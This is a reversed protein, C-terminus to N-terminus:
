PRHRRIPRRMRPARAENVFVEFTSLYWGQVGICGDNGFEFRIRVEDGGHALAGLDIQSQGWRAAAEGEDVGTFAPEGALPNTNQEEDDDKVATDILTSNYPNFLFASSRILEWPGDNVSIKLNGGDWGTESALYHDFVLTAETVHSPLSIAPSELYMVGSQDNDGPRCNGINSSNIAWMAGGNLGPAARATWRWTRDNDYEEFVGESTRVWSSGPDADFSVSYLLQKSTVPPPNPALVRAFNCGVPEDRMEVALMAVAVQDCDVESIVEPSVSGTELDTLSQGILEACSLELADAHDVFKTTPTQWVSMARWYIHAAKTMGIPIVTQGNYSGGDVMLAFAHSPIGCNSHVGGNDDEGSCRYDPSGVRGPHQYCGPRWMDRVIYGIAPDDECILWRLSEDDSAEKLLTAEVGQDLAAKLAVGDNYGVMLAPIDLRPGDGTMVHRLGPNEQNNNAVIVGVAGADFANLVMDRYSCDGRDILAIRGPNFDVLAECADSAIDTTDDALEVTARVTWPPVPNFEAHSSEFERAVSAPSHVTLTPPLWGGLVSCGSQNRLGSPEDRGRRNLIDLMEGFIDSYSESLAGPQWEYILDHTHRSYAHTWEHGVTEDSAVGLCYNTRDGDWNANPCEDISEAEYVSDMDHDNGDYSLFAGHSLNSFLEYIEGSATIIENVEADRTWDLGSFPLADGESWLPNTPTWRHHYVNRTIQHIRSIRNLIRGDHADVFVFERVWPLRSVEVQWALHDTGPLGRVLGTNYVRLVPTSIELEAAQIGRNKAVVARAVDAAGAQGLTPNPDIAIDPVAAGNMAVLEGSRNFHLKLQAGFVPVGEYVQGFSLHTMGLQDEASKLPELERAHDTLGFAEGFREFFSTARGKPDAGEFGLSGPFIEVLRPSGTAPDLVVRAAHAALEDLAAQRVPSVRRDAAFASVVLIIAVSSVATLRAGRRM